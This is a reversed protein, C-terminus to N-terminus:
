GDRVEEMGEPLEPLPQQMLEAHQQLDQQLRSLDTVVGRRHKEFSEKSDMIRDVLDGIAQQVQLELFLM